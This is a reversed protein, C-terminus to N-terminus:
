REGGQSTSQDRPRLRDCLLVLGVTAGCCGLLLIVYVFDNM